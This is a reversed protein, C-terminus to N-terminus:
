EKIVYIKRVLYIEYSGYESVKFSLTILIRGKRNGDVTAAYWGDLTNYTLPSSLINEGTVVSTTIELNTDNDAIPQNTAANYIQPRLVFQGGSDLTVYFVEDPDSTVMADSYGGIPPYFDIRPNFEYDTLTVPIRLYDNRRLGKAETLAYRQETSERDARKTTLTFGITEPEPRKSENLYFSYIPMDEGEQGKRVDLNLNDFTFSGSSTYEPLIPQNYENLTSFLFINNSTNQNVHNMVIKQVIIDSETYTKFTFKVKALMRFLPIDITYSNKNNLELAIVNSMPIPNTRSLTFGNGPITATIAMASAHTIQKGVANMASPIEMNAFAYIYKGGEKIKYDIIEQYQSNALSVSEEEIPINVTTNFKNRDFVAEINGQNDAIVIHWDYILEENEANEDSLDATPLGRTISFSLKNLDIYTEEISQEDKNDCGAFIIIFLTLLSLNYIYQLSKM